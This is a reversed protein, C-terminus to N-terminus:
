WKSFIPQGSGRTMTRKQIMAMMSATALRAVNFNLYVHFEGSLVRHDYAKPFSPERDGAEKSLAAGGNTHVILAVGSSKSLCRTFDFSQACFDHETTM